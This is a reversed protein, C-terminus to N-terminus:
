EAVSSSDTLDRIEIKKDYNVAESYQLLQRATTVALVETTRMVFRDKAEGENDLRDKPLRIIPRLFDFYVYGDDKQYVIPTVEQRDIQAEEQQKVVQETM